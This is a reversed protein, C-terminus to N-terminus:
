KLSQLWHILEADDVIRWSHPQKRHNPRRYGKNETQILEANKNGLLILENIMCSGALANIDSYDASGFDKM